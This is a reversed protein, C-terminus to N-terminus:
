ESVIVGSVLVWVFALIPSIFYAIAVAASFIVTWVALNIFKQKTM